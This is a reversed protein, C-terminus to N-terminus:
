DNKKVMVGDRIKDTPHLIVLDGASLGSKIETELGSTQGPQVQSRKAYGDVVRYVFWADGDRFLAGSAVKISQEPTSAVVIRAEIRFGDGLTKRDVAVDAFDAIANVRKEEVGLASVKLFASPEVLRVVAELPHPGGWHEIYVKDGPKIRIADTSLVDIEIELDLPNGLELLATGPVVVSADEHFVRLVQGDIPSVLRVPVTSPQSDDGDFRSLAVKATELEFQAVRVAFEASRVDAAAIHQRHEATDFESLSIARDVILQKARAYDHDALKLAENARVVTAKAQDLSAEAARVRAKYEAITRVDLLTPDAPEIRALETVGQEVVDGADLQLRLMKGAVPASVIYKERIRTEGDDNVTVELSGQTVEVVDVEISTPWFGYVLLAVLGLAIVIWPIKSLIKKM